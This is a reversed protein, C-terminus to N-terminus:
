EALSIFSYFAGVFLVLCLFHLVISFQLSLGAIFQQLFQPNMGWLLGLLSCIAFLALGIVPLKGPMHINPLRLPKQAIHQAASEGARALYVDLDCILKSILLVYLLGVFAPPSLVTLLFVLSWLIVSVYM